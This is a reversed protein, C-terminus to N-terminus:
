TSGKPLLCKNCPGCRASESQGFFDAPCVMARQEHTLGLWWLARTPEELDRGRLAYEPFIVDGSLLAGPLAGDDTAIYCLRAGYTRATATALILNDRDASVNVALNDARMLAGVAHLTRTYIWMPVDPALAAVRVIWEAHRESWVDGSVHWRFSTVHARIWEALAHAAVHRRDILAVRLALANHAYAEYVDPEARALGKVYCSARCVATSGPCYAGNHRSVSAAPLSFANPAPAEFTGNERTIKSNGDITFHHGGPLDIKAHIFQTTM